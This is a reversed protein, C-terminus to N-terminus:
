SQSKSRTYSSGPSPRTSLLPMMQSVTEPSGELTTKLHPWRISPGVGAAGRPAWGPGM